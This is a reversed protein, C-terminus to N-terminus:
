PQYYKRKLFEELTPFNDKNDIKKNKNLDKRFRNKSSFLDIRRSIFFNKNNRSEIKKLLKLSKELDELKQKDPKEQKHKKDIELIIKQLIECNNRDRKYYKIREVLYDTCCEIFELTYIIEGEKTNSKKTNYDLLEVLEKINILRLNESIKKIKNIIKEMNKSNIKNNIKLNHSNYSSSDSTKLPKINKLYIKYLLKYKNKIKELDKSKEIIQSEIIDNKDKSNYIKRLENLSDFIKSQLQNYYKLLYLNQSDLEKLADNFEESTKFIPSYKWFLVKDFEEKTFYEKTNNIEFCIVKYSNEKINNDMKSNNIKESEEKGKYLSVILNNRDVIFSRKMLYKKKKSSNSKKINKKEDRKFNNKDFFKGEMALIEGKNSEIIKKYLNPLILKKEKVQIQLFIWKIIKNKKIQLKEIESNIKEIQHKYNMKEQFYMINKKKEDNIVNDLYKIYDNLKNIFKINFLKLANQYSNIKEQFYENKTEIEEDLLTIRDKKLLSLYQLYKYVENKKIIKKTGYFQKNLNKLKLDTNINKKKMKKFEIIEKELNKLFETTDKKNKYNKAKETYDSLTLFIQNKKETENFSEKGSNYIINNNLLEEEILKFNKNKRESVYNLSSLSKKLSPKKTLNSTNTKFTQFTSLSYSPYSDINKLLTKVTFFNKSKQLELERKEFLTTNSFKLFLKKKKLNMINQNSKSKSFKKLKM